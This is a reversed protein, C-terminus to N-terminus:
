IERVRSFIFLLTSPCITRMVVGRGNSANINFRIGFCIILEVGVRLSICKKEIKDLSHLFAYTLTVKEYLSGIIM